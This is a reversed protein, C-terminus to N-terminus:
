TYNCFPACCCLNIIFVAIKVYFDAIKAIARDSEYDWKVDYIASNLARALWLPYRYPSGAAVAEVARVLRVACRLRVLVAFCLVAGLLSSLSRVACCGPVCVACLLAAFLLVCWWAVVFCVCCVACLAPSCRVVCCRLACPGPAVPLPLPCPALLLPVLGACCLLVACSLVVSPPMVRLLADCCHVWPCVACCLVACPVCCRAAAVFVALCLPPPPAVVLSCGVALRFARFPRSRVSLRSAAPWCLLCRVAGLGLAGPAPFWLFGSFVPASLPLFFFCFFWPM